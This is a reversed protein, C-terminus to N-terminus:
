RWWKVINEWAKHFIVWALPRSEGILHGKGKMGPRLQNNPNDLKAEIIFVSDNDRVIARPHITTIVVEWQQYPYADLFIELPMQQQVYIIDESPVAFEVLMSDLPAIEYLSQGKNVPSGEVRKLDGAIVIGDIPSKIELNAIRYQFLELQTDIREIELQAIQAAATDRAVTNVDKQKQARKKDAILGSLNWEIEREDLRALVENTTIVDGPEHFTQKLIGDFPATVFRHVTPQIMVKGAIKHPIPILAIIILLVPLALWFIKKWVKQQWFALWTSYLRGVSARQAAALTIGLPLMWQQNIAVTPQEKKWLFLLIANPKANLAPLLPLVFLHRSNTLHLIKQIVPYQQSNQTSDLPQNAIFSHNLLEEVAQIFEAQRQIETFQSVTQLRCYNRKVLGLLVWQCSLSKQLFYTLSTYVQKVTPLVLLNAMLQILLTHTNSRIHTYNAVLQLITAFLERGENGLLLILAIGGQSAPIAMMCVKPNETLNSIQLKNKESAQQIEKVLLTELQPHWSLAQKSLIRANVTWQTQQPAAYIAGAANTLGILLQLLKLLWDEHSTDQTVLQHLQIHLSLLDPPSIKIATSTFDTSM